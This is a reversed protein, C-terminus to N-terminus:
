SESLMEELFEAADAVCEPCERLAQNNDIGKLIKCQTAKNRQQFKEMIQRMKRMSKAKNKNVLGLIVGAGVLAGCTGEMNGMGAAFANGIDTATAEDIGAKDCYTCIVSQACNCQGSRKKEAAIYKRTEM